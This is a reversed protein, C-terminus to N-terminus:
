QNHKPVYKGKLSHILAIRQVDWDLARNRHHRMMDQCDKIKHVIKLEDLNYKSSMSM